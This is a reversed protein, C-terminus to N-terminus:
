YKETPVDSVNANLRKADPESGDESGDRDRKKISGGGVGAEEGQQEQDQEHEQPQDELPTMGAAEESAM